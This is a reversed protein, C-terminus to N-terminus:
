VREWQEPFWQTEACYGYEAYTRILSVDLVDPNDTKRITAQATHSGIKEPYMVHVTTENIPIIECDDISVSDIGNKSFWESKWHTGKLWDAMESSQNYKSERIMVRHYTSAGDLIWHILDPNDMNEFTNLGSDSYLIQDDLYFRQEQTYNEEWTNDESEVVGGSSMFGTMKLGGNELFEACTTYTMDQDIEVWRESRLKEYFPKLQEPIEGSQPLYESQTEVISTTEEVTTEMATTTETSTIPESSLIAIQTNQTETESEITQGCSSLVSMSIVIALGIVICKRFTHM